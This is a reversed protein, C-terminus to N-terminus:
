KKAGKDQTMLYIAGAGAAIVAPIFWEKETISEEDTQDYSDYGGGGMGASMGAEPESDGGGFAAIAASGLDEVAGFAGRVTQQRSEVAQPSWYGSDAKGQAKIDGSRQRTAVRDTRSAQRQGQRALKADRRAAKKDTKYQRRAAKKAARRARREDKKSMTKEGTLAVTKNGVKIPQKSSAPIATGRFSPAAFGISSKGAKRQASATRYKKATAPKAM